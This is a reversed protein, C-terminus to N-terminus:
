VYPVSSRAKGWGKARRLVARRYVFKGRTDIAYFWLVFNVQEATMEYPDGANDGDPQQLWEEVWEVVGWGLTRVSGDAPFTSLSRLAHRALARRAANRAEFALADAHPDNPATM